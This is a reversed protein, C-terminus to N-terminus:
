DIFRDINKFRKKPKYKSDLVRKKYDKFEKPTLWKPKGNKPLRKYLLDMENLHQVPDEFYLHKSHRNGNGLFYDLDTKMRSLMQYNFNDSRPRDSGFHSKPKMSPKYSKLKKEQNGAYGTNVYKVKSTSM